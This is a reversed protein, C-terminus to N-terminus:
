APHRASASQVAAISGVNPRLAYGGGRVTILSVENTVMALKKRLRGILVDITRDGVSWARRLSSRSLRERCVAAPAGGILEQMLSAETDSLQQFSLEGDIMGTMVDISLGAFALRYHLEPHTTPRPTPTAHHRRIVAHVRAILEEFDCPKIIYDDAGADLCHSATKSCEVCSLMIIPVASVARIKRCIGCGDDDDSFASLLILDPTEQPLATILASYDHICKLEIDFSKLHQRASRCFIMDDDVLILNVKKIISSAM